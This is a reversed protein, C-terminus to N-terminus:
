RPVHPFIAEQNVFISTTRGQESDMGSYDRRQDIRNLANSALPSLTERLTKREETERKKQCQPIMGNKTLLGTQILCCAQKNEKSPSAWPWPSCHARCLLQTSHLSHAVAAWTQAERAPPPSQPGVSAGETGRRVCGKRAIELMLQAPSLVGIVQEPHSEM